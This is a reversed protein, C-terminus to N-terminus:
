KTAEGPTPTRAAAIARSVRDARTDRSLWVSLNSKQVSWANVRNIHGDAVYMIRVGGYGAGSAPALHDLRIITTRLPNVVTVTTDSLIIRPRYALLWVALPAAVIMLVSYVHGDTGGPESAMVGTLTAVGIGGIGLGLLTAAARALVTARFVVPPHTLVM